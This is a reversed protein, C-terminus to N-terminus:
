GGGELDEEGVAPVVGRAGGLAGRLGGRGRAEEGRQAGHGGEQAGFAAFAAAGAAVDEDFGFGFHLARAVSDAQYGDVVEGAYRQFREGRGCCGRGCCRRRRRRRGREVEGGEGGQVGELEDEGERVWHVVGDFDRERRRAARRAEGAM